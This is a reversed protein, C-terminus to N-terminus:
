GRRWWSHSTKNIQQKKRCIFWKNHDCPTGLLGGSNRADFAVCYMQSYKVHMNIASWKNYGSDNLPMGELTVFSGNHHPDYAGVYVANCLERRGNGNGVKMLRSIIKADKQSHLSALNM